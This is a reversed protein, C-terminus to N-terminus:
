RRVELALLIARAIRGILSPARRMDMLTDVVVDDPVEHRWWWQGHYAHGGRGGVCYMPETVLAGLDASLIYHIHDDIYDDGEEADHRAACLIRGDPRVRVAM